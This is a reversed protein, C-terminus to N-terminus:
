KALVLLSYGGLLRVALDQHIAFALRRPVGAAKLAWNNSPLEARSTYFYDVIEYGCYKIAKLALDKTFSHIHGVDDWGRSLSNRIAGQATIDLPVHLLNFVGLGKMQRLFTFYDEIHEIVDMLLVLDYTPTGPPPIRECFFQIRPARNNAALDFAQPSMEYGDFHCTKPMSDRLTKLIGGAGSGIECIRDPALGNRALMKSIQQAKYPSDESHWSPNHTLYAGNTYIATGM